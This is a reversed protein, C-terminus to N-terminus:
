KNYCHLFVGNYGNNTRAIFCKKSLDLLGSLRARLRMRKTGEVFVILVLKMKDYIINMFLRSKDLIYMVM